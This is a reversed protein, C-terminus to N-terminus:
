KKQPQPSRKKPFKKVEEREYLVAKKVEDLSPNMFNKEDSTSSTAGIGVALNPDRVKKTSQPM